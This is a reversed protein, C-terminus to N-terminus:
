IGDRTTDGVRRRLTRKAQLLDLELTDLYTATQTFQRAAEVRAVGNVGECGRCRGGDLCTSPESRRWMRTM